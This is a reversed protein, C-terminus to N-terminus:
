SILEKDRLYQLLQLAEKTPLTLNLSIKTTNDSLVSLSCLVSSAPIPFTAPTPFTAPKPSTAPTPPLPPTPSLPPLALVRKVFSYNTDATIANNHYISTVGHLSVNLLKCIQYLTSTSPAGYGYLWNSVRSLPNSIHPYFPQMLKTLSVGRSDALDQFFQRADPYRVERTM